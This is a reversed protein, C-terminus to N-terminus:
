VYSINWNDKSHRLIYYESDEPYTTADDVDIGFASNVATKKLTLTKGSATTSLHTIISEISEKNLPSYRIDFSQGITGAIRIDTLSTCNYFSNSYATSAKVTITGTRVLSSCNHFIEGINGAGCTYIDGIQTLRVCGRCMAYFGGCSNFNLKKGNSLNLLDTIRSDYFMSNATTPSLDYKPKFTYEDWVYGKFLNSYDKRTGNSQYRDWFEDYVAQRGQEEGEVNGDYWGDTYGIEEGDSYGAEYGAQLNDTAVKTTVMDISNAFDNPKILDNTGLHARITDAIKKFKEQQVSM